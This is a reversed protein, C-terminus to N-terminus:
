SLNAVVHLKVNLIKILGIATLVLPLTKFISYAVRGEYSINKSGNVYLIGIVTM